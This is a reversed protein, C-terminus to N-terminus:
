FFFIGLTRSMSRLNLCMPGFEPYRCPCGPFSCRTMPVPKVGLYGWLGRGNSPSTAQLILATTHCTRSFQLACPAAQGSQLARVETSPGSGERYGDVVLAFHKCQTRVAHASRACQLSVWGM